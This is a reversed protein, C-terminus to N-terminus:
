KNKCRGEELLPKASCIGPWTLSPRAGVGAEGLSSYPFYRAKLVRSLLSEPRTLIRWGQKALLALNFERLEWFGLGGAGLPRCLKRWAVWHTTKEGRSHWWFDAMIAELNRVLTTPLQFCSMAYTPLSQLVAKM